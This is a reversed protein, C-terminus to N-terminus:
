HVTIGLGLQGVSANTNSSTAVGVGNWFPTLSVNAGVRIDWGVGLVVGAGHVAADDLRITGLGIGGTLFFGSTRVPYFRLRLDTTGVSLASGDVVRVYGAEGIGVLLRDNVTGGLSVGLGLGSWSFACTSCTASGYGLGGNFWFGERTQPRRGIPPAVYDVRGDGIPQQDQLGKLQAQLVDAEARAAQIRETAKDRRPVLPRLTPPIPPGQVTPLTARSRPPAGILSPSGDGNVIEILNALVYGARPKGQENPVLVRYWEGQRDVVDVPGDETLTAIIASTLNAEARIPTDAIRARATQAGATSSTALLLSVAFTSLVLRNV